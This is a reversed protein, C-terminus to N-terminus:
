YVQSKVKPEKDLDRGIRKKILDRIEKQTIEYQNPNAFEDATPNIMKASYLHEKDWGKLALKVVTNCPENQISDDKLINILDGTFPKWNSIYYIHDWQMTEIAKKCYESERLNLYKEMRSYTIQDDFIRHYSNLDTPDVAIAKIYLESSNQYKQALYLKIAKVLYFRSSSSIVTNLYQFEEENLNEYFDPLDNTFCATSIL